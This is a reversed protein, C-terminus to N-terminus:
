RQIRKGLWDILSHYFFESYPNNFSELSHRERLRKEFDYPAIQFSHDAEPVMIRTVDLNGARRLILEAEAADEPPVNMDLEGHLILSPGRIYSFLDQPTYQLEFKMRELRYDWQNSGDVVRYFDNGAVAGMMIDIYQNGLVRARPCTAEVWARNEDSLLAYRNLRGYNYEFLRANSGCLAGLFVYADAHVGKMAALGAFYAGASEGFVVIESFGVSRAYEIISILDDAEDEDNLLHDGAPTLGYGRKDWRISSYGSYALREALRKMNDRVPVDRSGDVLQGDRTHTMTGGALVMCAPTIGTGPMTLTGALTTSKSSISLEISQM